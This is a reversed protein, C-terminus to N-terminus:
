TTATWFSRCITERVKPAPHAQPCVSPDWAARDHEHCAPVSVSFHQPGERWWRLGVVIGSEIPATCSPDWRYSWCKALQLLLSVALEFDAQAVHHNYEFGFWVLGRHSFFSHFCVLCLSFRAQESSGWCLLPTVGWRRFLPGM